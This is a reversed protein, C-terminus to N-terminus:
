FTLQFLVSILHNSDRPTTDTPDVDQWTYQFQTKCAHGYYFANAVVSIERVDGDVAGLGRVGTLFDVGSGAQGEDTSVESYRLGLGWQIKSNERREFLYGTTVAWGRSDEEDASDQLEDSRQFYEGLLSYQRATWATNVTWSLSEIDNQAAAPPVGGTAYRDNGLAVAGGLTGRCPEERKRLGGANRWYEATNDGGQRWYETTQEGGFFDGLVDWQLSAVYSPENDVSSAEEGTGLFGNQAELPLTTPDDLSGAQTAHTVDGNMAGLAFRVPRSRQMLAGVLWAGRSRAGSFATAAASRDVFWLGNVFGTGELGFMTKGQGLRLGIRGDGDPTTSLNWQAYADKVVSGVRDDDDTLDFQLRFSIREDFVHGRLQSRVAPLDFDNSDAADELNAYNWTAQAFNLWNLQFDNGGGYTLGAGRHYSWGTPALAAAVTTVTPPPTPSPPAAAEQALLLGTTSAVAFLQCPISQKL